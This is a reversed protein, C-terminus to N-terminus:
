VVSKCNPCIFWNSHIQTGCTGCFRRSDMSREASGTGEATSDPKELPRTVGSIGASSDTPFDKHSVEPAKPFTGMGPQHTVEPPKHFSLPTKNKGSPEEILTKPSEAHDDAPPLAPYGTNTDDGYVPEGMYIPVSPDQQGFTVPYQPLMPYPASVGPISPITGQADTVPPMGPQTPYGSQPQQQMMGYERMQQLQVRQDYDLEREAKKLRRKMLAKRPRGMRAMRAKRRKKSGVIFLLFSLLVLIIIMVIAIIILQGETSEVDLMSTLSDDKPRERITVLIQDSNFAGDDDSVTLAVEYVGPETFTHKIDRLTSTTGDKFDWQYVLFPLDSPSDWSSKSSFNLEEGVYAVEMNLSLKATPVKNKVNIIYTSISEEDDDDLVTLFVQFMGSQTFVHDVTRGTGIDGDNFDWLYELNILDSPTDTTSKADFYVAEDEFIESVSVEFQAEPPLNEVSITITESSVAGDDDKVRFLVDYTGRSRYTHEVELHGTSWDYITGDDFDWYYELMDLDSQTDNVVGHLEFEEDEELELDKEQIAASPRVNQISAYIFKKDSGGNDDRVTLTITYRQSTKYVYYFERNHKITGDGMDWTYNLGQLDSPSDYSDVATFFLTDDENSEIDRDINSIAIPLINNITISLTETDKQNDDDTVTVQVDYVGQNTYVREIVKETTELTTGDGFNWSFVLKSYDTATDHTNLLDFEIVDDENMNLGTYKIDLAPIVNNVKILQSASVPEDKTDTITLTAEYYGEKPYSHTTDPTDTSFYDYKGDGDFDWEYKSIKGSTQARFNIVDDEDVDTKSIDLKRISAISDLASVADVVGWGYANDPGSSGRDESTEHFIDMVDQPTLSPKVQLMLAVVGAAIPSSFSTGSTTTWRNGPYAVTVGVGPACVDPKTIGGAGPGRSSASWIQKNDNIAGIAIIKKARAPSTVTSSGPGSNGASTVFTIGGDVATECVQDMQSNPSTGLSMSIVDPGDPVGDKNFDTNKNQLSWSVARQIDWTSGGVRIIILYAGPASGARNTNGGTGAACSATMTGHPLQISDYADMGNTPDLDDRGNVYDKFAIIKGAPFTQHDGDAGTDIIVITVGSGDINPYGAKSLTDQDAEVVPVSSSLSIEAKQNSFIMAIRPDKALELLHGKEIRIGASEVGHAVFVIEAGSNILYDKFDQDIFFETRITVEVIENNSLSTLQPEFLDQIRNFNLDDTSDKPLMVVPMDSTGYEEYDFTRYDAHNASSALESQPLYNALAAMGPLAILLTLILLSFLISRYGTM